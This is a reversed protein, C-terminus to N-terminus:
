INKKKIHYNRDAVLQAKEAASLGKKRFCSSAHVREKKVRIKYCKEALTRAIDEIEFLERDTM